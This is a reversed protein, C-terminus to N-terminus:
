INEPKEIRVRKANKYFDKKTAKGEVDRTSLQEFNIKANDSGILFMLDLHAVDRVFDYSFAVKADDPGAVVYVRTETFYDNDYNEKDPTVFLRFGLAFKDNFNFKENFMLSSRGYRYQDFDFPSEGHYGSLMYGISSDWKKYRTTLTPGIRVIGFTEGSGYLTAAGQVTADFQMAFDQERNSYSFMKKRAQAMYRFRTTSYANEQDDKDYDSYLGGYIADSFLIDLDKIKRTRAYQLQGAYGSRRGGMFGEPIYAHRGYLFSVNNAINYKGRVVANESATNWGGEVMHNPSRYRGIAGVGFNGSKMAVVPLFKFIHGKPMKYVFGYGLYTGFNRLNGAEPANIEINQKKKDTIIEIDTGHVIKKGNYFVNSDKLLVSNHNKYSIIEVKKADIRYNQRKGKLYNEDHERKEFGYGYGVDDYRMFGRTYLPFDSKRSSKITGNLMQIDNAILYGEQATILFSYADLTPNDVLINQENLDVLLYEGTMQTDNKIVKVGGQLKLTQNNKDLVANDSKLTIGQAQAIIEVNGDAYVNGDDDNYTVKDANIKFKNKEDVVVQQSDSALNDAKKEEIKVPEVETNEEEVIAEDDIEQETKKRKFIKRFKKDLFSGLDQNKDYTPLDANYLDDYLVENEQVNQVNDQITKAQYVEYACSISGQKFMLFALLVIFFTYKKSNIKM